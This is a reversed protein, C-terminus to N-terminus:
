NLIIKVRLNFDLIWNIIITIPSIQVEYIIEFLENYQQLIKLIKLVSSLYIMKQLSNRSFISKLAEMGRACMSPYIDKSYQWQNIIIM